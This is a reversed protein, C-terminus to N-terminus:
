ELMDIMSPQNAGKIAVQMTAFIMFYNISKHNSGNAAWLIAKAINSSALKTLAKIIDEKTGIVISQYHEIPQSEGTARNKCLHCLLSNALWQQSGTWANKAVKIISGAMIVDTLKVLNLLNKCNNLLKTM